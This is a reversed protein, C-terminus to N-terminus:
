ADGEKLECIGVVGGYVACTAIWVIGDSSTGIGIAVLFIGMAMAAMRYKAMM